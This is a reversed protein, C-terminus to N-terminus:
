KRNRNKKNKKKPKAAQKTCHTRSKNEQAEHLKKLYCDASLKKGLSRLSEYCEKAEDLQGLGMLANGKQTISKTCKPDISLASICDALADQYKGMKNRCIARNTWLPRDCPNM